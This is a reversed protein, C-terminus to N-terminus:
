FITEETGIDTCPSIFYRLPTRLSDVTGQMLRMLSGASPQVHLNGDEGRYIRGMPDYPFLERILVTHTLHKHQLDKHHGIYALVNAGRGAPADIVCEMEPFLLRENKKLATRTDM